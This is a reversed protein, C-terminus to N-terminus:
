RVGYEILRDRVESATSFQEISGDGFMIEYGRNRGWPNWAVSVLGGPTEVHLAHQGSFPDRYHHDFHLEQLACPITNLITKM